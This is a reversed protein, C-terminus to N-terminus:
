QVEIIITFSETLQEETNFTAVDDLTIILATTGVEQGKVTITKTDLEDNSISELWISSNDVTAIDESSSSITIRGVADKTSIDITRSEGVPITLQDKSIIVKDLYNISSVQIPEATPTPKVQRKTKTTILFVVLSICIMIVAFIIYNTRSMKM